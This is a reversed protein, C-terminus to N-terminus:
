FISLYSVLYPFACATLSILAIQHNAQTDVVEIILYEGM